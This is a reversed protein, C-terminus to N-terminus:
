KGVQSDAPIDREGKLAAVKLWKKRSTIEGQQRNCTNPRLEAM